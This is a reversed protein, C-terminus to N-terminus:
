TKSSTAPSSRLGLVRLGAYFPAQRPVSKPHTFTTYVDKVSRFLGCFQINYRLIYNCLILFIRKSQVFHINTIFM